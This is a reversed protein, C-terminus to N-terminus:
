GGGVFRLIEIEDNENIKFSDFDEKKIINRNVEVVVHSPNINYKTLLEGLTLVQQTSIKKGNLIIEM